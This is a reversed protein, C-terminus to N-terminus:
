ATCQPKKSCKPFPPKGVARRALPTLPAIWWSTAERLVNLAAGAAGLDEWEDAQRQLRRREDRCADCLTLPDRTTIASWRKLVRPTRIAAGIAWILLLVDIPHPTM